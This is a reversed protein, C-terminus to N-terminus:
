KLAHHIKLIQPIVLCSDDNVIIYDSLAKKKKEPWQSMMRQIIEKESLDDRKLIRQTRIQEPCSVCIYADLSKNNNSEFLIASEKIVYTSSQQDCWIEFADQVLPHVLDNLKKLHKINNFALRSLYKRNLGFENFVNEGFHNILKQKLTSNNNM